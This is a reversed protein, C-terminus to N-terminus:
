QAYKPKNLRRRFGALSGSIIIRFYRTLKLPKQPSKLLKVGRLFVRSLGVTIQILKMYECFFTSEYRAINAMREFSVTESLLSLEHNVVAPLLQCHKGNQEIEAFISFDLGDLWYYNNFGNAKVLYAVDYVSFSNIASCGKSRFIYRPLGILNFFFPSVIRDRSVVTPVWVVTGDDTSQVHRLVADIYSLSVVSDQDLTILHTFSEKLAIDLALNYALPLGVNEGLAQYRVGHQAILKSAPIGPSNDIVLIEFIKSELTKELVEILSNVTASTLLEQKFLVIVALFKRKMAIRM